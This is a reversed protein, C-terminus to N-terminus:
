SEKSKRGRKEAKEEEMTRPRRVITIVLMALSGLLVAASTSASLLNMPVLVSCIIFQMVFVFLAVSIHRFDAISLHAMAKNSAFSILMSLLFAFAFEMPVSYHKEVESMAFSSVAVAILPVIAASVIAYITLEAAKRAFDSM